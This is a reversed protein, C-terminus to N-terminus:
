STLKEEGSEIQLFSFLPAAAVGLNGGLRESISMRVGGEDRAAMM